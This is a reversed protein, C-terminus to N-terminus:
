SIIDLVVISGVVEREACFQFVNYYIFVEIQVVRSGIGSLEMTPFVTRCVDEYVSAFRLTAYVTRSAIAVIQEGTINIVFAVRALAQLPVEAAVAYRNFVPFGRMM